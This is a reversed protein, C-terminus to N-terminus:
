LRRGIFILSPSSLSNEMGYPVCGLRRNLEVLFEGPASGVELAKGGRLQPLHKRLMVNWLLYDDYSTLYELTRKGLIKKVKAKVRGKVSPRRHESEQVQHASSLSQKEGVHVSDWYEKESLKNM